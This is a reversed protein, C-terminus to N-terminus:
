MPDLGVGRKGYWLKVSAGLGWRDKCIISECLTLVGVEKEM